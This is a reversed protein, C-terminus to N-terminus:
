KQQSEVWEFGLRKLLKIGEDRRDDSNLLKIAEDWEQEWQQRFYERDERIQEECEESQWRNHYNM